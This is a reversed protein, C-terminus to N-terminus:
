VRNIPLFFFKEGFTFSLKMRGEVMALTFIGRSIIDMGIVFDYGSPIQEIEDVEVITAWDSAGPMAISLVARSTITGGVGQLNKHPKKLRPLNLAHSIHRSIVSSQAGTDWVADLIVERQSVTNILRIPTVPLMPNELFKSYTKEEM